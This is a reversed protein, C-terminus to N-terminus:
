FRVGLYIGAANYSSDQNGWFKAEVFLPVSEIPLNYGLGVQYEFRTKDDGPVHDFSAGVGGDLFVGSSTTYVYNLLIPTENVSNRSFYDISLSLAQKDKGSTPLHYFQYEGGFGFWTSGITNSVDSDTPFVLGARLSVGVPNSQAM